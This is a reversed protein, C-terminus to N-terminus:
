VAETGFVCDFELSEQAFHDRSRIWRATAPEFQFDLRRCLRDLRNWLIANRTLATQTSVREDPFDLRVARILKAQMDSFAHEHVICEDSVLDIAVANVTADFQALCDQISKCRDLGNDFCEIIVIDLYQGQDRPYWRWAGFPGKTLHGTGAIEDLLPGEIARHIFLDVDRAAELRDLFGDRPFGGAVYCNHAAFGLLKRGFSHDFRRFLASRIQSTRALLASSYEM